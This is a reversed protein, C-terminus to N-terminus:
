HSHNSDSSEVAAFIGAVVAVVGLGIGIRRANLNTGRVAAGDQAHLAIGPAFLAFATLAIAFAKKM